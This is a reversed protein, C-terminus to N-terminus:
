AVENVLIRVRSERFGGWVGGGHLEFDLQTVCGSFPNRGIEGAEYVDELLCVIPAVDDEFVFGGLIGIDGDRSVQLM